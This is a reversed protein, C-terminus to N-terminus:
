GSHFGLLSVFTAFARRGSSQTPRKGLGDVSPFNNNVECENNLYVLTVQSAISLPGADPLSGLIYVRFTSYLTPFLLRLCLTLYLQYDIRRLSRWVAPFGGHMQEEETM